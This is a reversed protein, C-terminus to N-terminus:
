YSPDACRAPGTTTRAASSPSGNSSGASRRRAPRAADVVHVTVFLDGRGRRQVNPIGKGKLKPSRAPDTGAEVKVPEAGDLGEVTLRAGLAAQAVTVDLVTFLDQGRREFRDSEEVQLRVFLDGQPGGAAGANGAGTIRLEM